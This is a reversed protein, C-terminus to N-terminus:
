HIFAQVFGVVKWSHSCFNRTIMQTSYLCCAETYCCTYFFSFPFIFKSQSCHTCFHCHVSQGPPPAIPCTLPDCSMLKWWRSVTPTQACIQQLQVAFKNCHKIIATKINWKWTTSLPTSVQALVTAHSSINQGSEEHCHWLLCFATLLWIVSLLVWYCISLHKPSENLSIKSQFERYLTYKCLGFVM